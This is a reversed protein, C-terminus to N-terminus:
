PTLILVIQLGYTQFLSNQLKVSFSSSPRVRVICQHVTQQLAYTDGAISCISPLMQQMLVVDRHYCGDFKCLRKVAKKGPSGLYASPYVMRSKVSASIIPHCYCWSSWICTMHVESWVSLWALVEDNLNKRAPHGEQQGVLLTMASFAHARTDQHPM